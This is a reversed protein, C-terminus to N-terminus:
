QLILIDIRRNKARGSASENSAIPKESGYGVSSIREASVAVAQRLYQMVAYARDESLRKNTAADGVNDTHGEVVLKSDKFMLIVKGVKDLLDVHEETIQSSGSQFSLGFLRLIIDDSPSFLVEGETPGIMSRAMRVKEEKELRKGLEGSVKDHQKELEDLQEQQTAMDYTLEEKTTVLEAVKADLVESLKLPDTEASPYGTKNMTATLRDALMQLTDRLATRQGKLAVIASAVSDAAKLPGADFPLTEIGLEDAVRQMQIEYVLMLREWAQDNRELSRVTKALTSAHRAEYEALTAEEVATTRNYRDQVLLGDARSRANRARDLTTLAYKEAEDAVAMAILKDAKGLVAVRVAEMEATDFLPMAKGAESLGDKVKGAEVKDTAKLFQKEAINWLEPVLEPAEAQLAKQRIQIYESLTLKALDTAKLASEAYERSEAILGGIKEPKKEQEAARRAEQLKKEAKEFAGPAYVAAELARASDILEELAIMAPSDDAATPGAVPLFMSLFCLVLSARKLM